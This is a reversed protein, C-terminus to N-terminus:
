ALRSELLHVPFLMADIMEYFEAATKTEGMDMDFYLKGDATGIFRPVDPRYKYEPQFLKKAKKGRWASIAAAYGEKRANFEARIVSNEVDRACAKIFNEEWGNLEIGYRQKFREITHGVSAAIGLHPPFPFNEAEFEGESEALVTRTRELGVERNNLGYSNSAQCAGFVSLPREWLVFGEALMVTKCINDYDVNGHEFYRGSFTEHIRELLQRKVAGHYIGFPCTPRDTAGEWFFLRRMLDKQQLVALNSAIPLHTIHQGEPRADPWVYYSRGWSISEVKPVAKQAVAIVDCLEPDLYDDDGIIAIWEGRTEPIMREWNDRMSLPKDAPPLLRLRADDIERVFDALPTADDSNDALLVEFESRESTLLHRVADIAYTQRNRTPICISLLTM